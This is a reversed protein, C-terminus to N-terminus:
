QEISGSERLDSLRPLRKEKESERNLQCLVMVPISLEKAMAKIGRSVEAVEQERSNFQGASAVLQLYDIIVMGLKHRSHLRRAKARMELINLNASADIWLPAAKLLKASEILERQRDCFGDKLKQMDVRANSCLMRMALQEAAMELSFILTPVPPRTERPAPMAAHEAINMAISTKGMSPRAAVVIMEAPHFGFTLKDLDTYGSPVGSVEGRRQLMKNVLATAVDVSKGIPEASDSITDQQIKFFASEVAGLLEPVSGQGAGHAQEVTWQSTRILQRLFFKDRVIQLWHKAHVTTQIRNTLEYLYAHGGIADLQGMDKLKNAVLIEDAPTGQLNLAILAEFIIQHASRYFYEPRLKVVLCENLVDGGNELLCSALLGQEADINHPAIRGAEPGSGGPTAGGPTGGPPSSETRTRPRPTASVSM